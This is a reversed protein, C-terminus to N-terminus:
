WCGVSTLPHLRPLTAQQFIWSRQSRTSTTILLLFALPPQCQELQGGAAEGAIMAMARVGQGRTRTAHGISSSSSSGCYPVGLLLIDPGMVPYIAPAPAPAAAAVSTGWTPDPDAAVEEEHRTLLERTQIWRLACTSNSVGGKFSVLIRWAWHQQAWLIEPPWCSVEYFACYCTGAQKLLLFM